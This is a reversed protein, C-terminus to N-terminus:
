GPFSQTISPITGKEIRMGVRSVCVCVDKFTFGKSSVSYSYVKDVPPLQLCPTTPPCEIPILSQSMTTSSLFPWAKETSERLPAPSRETHFCMKIYPTFLELYLESDENM